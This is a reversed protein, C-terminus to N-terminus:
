KEVNQPNRLVKYYLILVGIFLGAISVLQTKSFVGAVPEAEKTFEIIIRGSFAMIFFCATFFGDKRKKLFHFATFLIIFCAFYYFSEYLQVPHRPLMQYDTGEFVVAWPLDTPKGYLEGNIFNGVRIFSSQLFGVISAIDIIWWFGVSPNHRSFLYIALVVGMLGGHSALGGEWVRFLMWPDALFLDLNYYFVDFLRAGILAGIFMYQIIPIILDPNKNEKKFVYLCYVYGALISFSWSLGYWSVAVQGIQFAVPDPNWHIM